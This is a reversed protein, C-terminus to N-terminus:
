SPILSLSVNYYNDAADLWNVYFLYIGVLELMERLVLSRFPIGPRMLNRLGRTDLISTAWVGAIEENCTDSLWAWIIRPLGIGSRATRERKTHERWREGLRENTKAIALDSM